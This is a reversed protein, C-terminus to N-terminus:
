GCFLIQDKSVDPGRLAPYVINVHANVVSVTALVGALLQTTYFRMKGHLPRLLNSLTQPNSLPYSLALLFDQPLFGANLLPKLATASFSKRKPKGKNAEGAGVDQHDRAILDKIRAKSRGSMSVLISVRGEREQTMGNFAVKERAVGSRVAPSAPARTGYSQHTLVTECAVLNLIWESGRGSSPFSALGVLRIPVYYLLFTALLLATTVARIGPDGGSVGRAALVV